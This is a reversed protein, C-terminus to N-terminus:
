NRWVGESLYHSLMQTKVFQELLSHCRRNYLPGIVDGYARREVRRDGECESISTTITSATGARDRSGVVSGDDAGCSSGAGRHKPERHQQPHSPGTSPNSRAVEAAEAAAAKVKKYLREDLLVTLTPGEGVEFTCEAAGQLNTDDPSQSIYTKM